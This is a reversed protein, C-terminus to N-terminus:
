GTTYGNPERENARERRRLPRATPTGFLPPHWPAAEHMRGAPKSRTWARTGIVAIGHFFCTEGNWGCCRM